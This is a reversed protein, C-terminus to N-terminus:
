FGGVVNGDNMKMLNKFLEEDLSTSLFHVSADCFGANFGGPFNGWMQWPEIEEPNIGGDPKTWPVAMEDPTELFMITNSTGDVVEAIRRGVSKGQGDDGM